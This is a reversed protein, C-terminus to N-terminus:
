KQDTHLVPQKSNCITIHLIGYLVRVALHGRSHRPMGTFSGGIGKPRSCSGKETAHM